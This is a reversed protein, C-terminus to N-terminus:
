NYPQESDVVVFRRGNVTVIGADVRYVERIAEETIIAEDGYRYTCGDHILMSQWLCCM